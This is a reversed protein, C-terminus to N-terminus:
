EITGVKDKAEIKIKEQSLLLRLIKLDGSDVAEHLPTRM